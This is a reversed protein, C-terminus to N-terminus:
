ERKPTAAIAERIFICDSYTCTALVHPRIIENATMATMCTGCVPMAGGNFDTWTMGTDDLEKSIDAFVQHEPDERDESPYQAITYATDVGIKSIPNAVRGCECKLFDANGSEIRTGDRVLYEEDDNFINVIETGDDLRVFERDLSNLSGDDDLQEVERVRGFATDVKCRSELGKGDWVSVYTALVFVAAM